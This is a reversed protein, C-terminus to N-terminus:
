KSQYSKYKKTYIKSEKELIKTGEETNIYYKRLVDELTCNEKLIDEISNLIEKKIKENSNYYINFLHSALVASLIYKKSLIESFEEKKNNFKNHEYTIIENKIGLLRQLNTIDFNYESIESASVKEMFIPLLEENLTNEIFGKRSGILAHAMEHVYINYKQEDTMGNLRIEHYVPILNKYVKPPLNNSFTEYETEGGYEKALNFKVPINYVFTTKHNKNIFDVIEDYLEPELKPYNKILLTNLEENENYPVNIGSMGFHNLIFTRGYSLVEKNTTLKLSNFIDLNYYPLEDLLTNRLHKYNVSEFYKSDYRKTGFLNKDVEIKEKANSSLEKM